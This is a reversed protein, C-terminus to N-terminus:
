VRRSRKPGLSPILRVPVNGVQIDYINPEAILQVSVCALDARLGYVPLVFNSVAMPFIPIAAPGTIKNNAEPKRNKGMARWQSM